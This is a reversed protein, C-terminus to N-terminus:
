QAPVWRLTVFWERGPENYFSTTEYDRDLVNALRGQLTFADTLAYEARLDVTAYGPLRRTNAVDDFRSGEAIGTIGLRFDGFARDLELRASHGARRPLEMGANFGTLSETDLYSISAAVQWQAFGTDLGLEAGRMRARDINNPLNIAADFTILDEVETQFADLRVDLHRGRWALGLEASESQEPRLNPNGFFPYYLENFTPAKFATGYGASLRWRDAFEVGWAASGTTHGGFQENDDRRVSAQLSQAGFRGQYQAFAARNGRESEDYTTSGAVRDRLWDIGASLLQQGGFGFDGQLTASDRDTDFYGLNAGDKFQESADVNRGATLKLQMADSPRWRVSGGVVQQVTESRNTFDGDFDNEGESRLAVASLQWADDLDIGARLALANQIYGDLDPEPASIFCGGAFPDPTAVDCSNFGETRRFEYDAGFWSRAGRGGFGVGFEHAGHSGGGVHARPAYGADGDRRTFIQIVGGIAESGYLSSRPGRVIEVREVLALPLNQLSVLGSTASGIRIGDVLVVVHDSESGRLFLTTLKGDGGQSSMSVGARGGLLDPLSRAQSREIEARDIVEVPALAADVDIATRTATVVVGDLDTASQAAAAAHAIGGSALAPLALAAAVALSLSRSQM